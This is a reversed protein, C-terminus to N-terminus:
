KVNKIDWSWMLSRESLSLCKLASIKTFDQFLNCSCYNDINKSCSTLDRTLDYVPKTTIFIKM